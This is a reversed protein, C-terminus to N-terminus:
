SPFPGDAKFDFSSEASLGPPIRRRLGGSRLFEPDAGEVTIFDYPADPTGLVNCGKPALYQIELQFSEVQQNSQNMVAIRPGRWGDNTKGFIFETIQVPSHPQSVAVVHVGFLEQASASHPRSVISLFLAAALAFILRVKM